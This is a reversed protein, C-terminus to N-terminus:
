RTASMARLANLAEVAKPDPPQVDLLQQKLWSTLSMFQIKQEETAMTPQIKLVAAMVGDYDKKDLATKVTAAEPLQAIIAAIETAASAEPTKEKCAVGVVLSLVALVTACSQTFSKM